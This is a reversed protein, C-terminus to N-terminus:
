CSLARFWTPSIKRKAVSNQILLNVVYIFSLIGVSEPSVEPIYVPDAYRYTEYALGFGMLDLESNTTPYIFSM